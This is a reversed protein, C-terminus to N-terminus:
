TKFGNNMYLLSYFTFSDDLSSDIFFRDFLTFFDLIPSSPKPKNLLSLIKSHILDLSNGYKKSKIGFHFLRFALAMLTLVDLNKSLETDFLPDIDYNCLAIKSLDLLEDLFLSYYFSDDLPDIITNYKYKRTKFDNIILSNISDILCPNDIVLQRFFKFRKIQNTFPRIFRFDFSDSLKFDNLDEEETILSINLFGLFSHRDFLKLDLDPIKILMDELLKIDNYIQRNNINFDILEQSSKAKLNLDLGFFSKPILLADHIGIISHSDISLINDRIHLMIKTETLMFIRSFVKSDGNFYSHKLSRIQKALTLLPRHNKILINILSRLELNDINFKSFREHSIHFNGGFLLGLIFTKLLARVDSEYKRFLENQLSCTTWNDDEPPIIIHIFDDLFSQRNNLYWLFYSYDDPNIHKQKTLYNTLTAYAANTIDLEIMDQEFILSRLVRPLTNLITTSRGYLLSVSPTFWLRNKDDVRNLLDTLKRKFGLNFHQTSSYYKLYKKILSFQLPTLTYYTNYQNEKVKTINLKNIILDTKTLKTVDKSKKFSTYFAIYDDDSISGYFWDYLITFSEEEDIYLFDLKYKLHGSKYLPYYTSAGRKDLSNGLRRLVFMNNFMAKAINSRYHRISSARFSQAMVNFGLNNTNGDKLVLKTIDILSEIPNNKYSSQEKIINTTMVKLFKIDPLIGNRNTKKNRNIILPTALIDHNNYLESSLEDLSDFNFHKNINNSIGV